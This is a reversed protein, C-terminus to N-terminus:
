RRKVWRLYQRLDDRFIVEQDENLLRLYDEGMRNAKPWEAVAILEIDAARKRGADSRVLELLRHLEVLNGDSLKLLALQLRELGFTTPLDADLLELISTPSEGPFLSRVKRGVVERRFFPAKKRSGRSDRQPGTENAEKRRRTLFMFFLVVAVGGVGILGIEIAISM